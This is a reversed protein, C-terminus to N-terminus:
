QFPAAEDVLLVPIDDTIRYRLRCSRCDLSNEKEEYALKGKCKPCVLMAILVPSLPM